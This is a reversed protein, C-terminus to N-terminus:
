PPLSRTQELTNLTLIVLLNSSLTIALFPAVISFSLRLPSHYLAVLYHAVNVGYEGSGAPIHISPSQIDVRGESCYSPFPQADKM